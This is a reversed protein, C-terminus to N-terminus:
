KKRIIKTPNGAAVCNSPIDKVVVSGAGITVNDGISINAIIVVNAGITVNDGIIPILDNRGDIKNGITTCQRCSFNNGIRRANLITAFPHAAYFGFGINKTGIIFTREGPFAWSILKSLKGIRYYFVQRFYKDNQLFFVLAFLISSCPIIVSSGKILRKLDKIINKKNKSFVFLIVHLTYLPCKFFLLLNRM